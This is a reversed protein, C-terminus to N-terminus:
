IHILSLGTPAQAAKALGAPAGMEASITAAMNESREGLLETIRNLLGVRYEVSTQSYSDFADQAARVAADVDSPGGMAISAIPAETAPNIVDLKTDTKPEVWQGNIYFLENNNSPEM